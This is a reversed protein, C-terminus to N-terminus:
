KPGGRRTTGIMTPRKHHGPKTHTPPKHGKGVVPKKRPKPKPKQRPKPKPQPALAGAGKDIPGPTSSSNGNGLVGLIGPWDINPNSLYGSNPDYIQEGPGVTMPQQLTSARAQAEAAVLQAEAQTAAASPPGGAQANASGRARVVYLAVGAIVAWLWVPLPGLKRTLSEGVNGM